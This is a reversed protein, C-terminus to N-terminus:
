EAALGVQAILKEAAARKEELLPALENLQRQM